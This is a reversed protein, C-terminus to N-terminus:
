RGHSGSHLPRVIRWARIAGHLDVPQLWDFREGRELRAWLGKPAVAKYLDTENAGPCAVLYDAGSRLLRIRAEPPQAMFTAMVYHIAHADRHYGAGIARHDTHALLMPAMDIPAFLTSIPLRALHPMEDIFVCSPHTERAAAAAAARGAPTMSGILASGLFGPALAVFAGAGAAIRTSVRPANRARDRLRELLWAAGPLALANATAGARLVFLCLCLAALAIAILMSWSVRTEGRSARWALAGGILGIVPLTLTVVAMLGTQVWIPRGEGVSLYWYRYVLPDLTAFPGRTCVPALWRITAVAALGALALMALRAVPSRPALATAILIGGTGVGIAALWAPAIADCAPALANPGRTAIHLLLLTVPLSAAMAALQVCREPILAWALATVGLIAATIPMGELSIALLTALAAGAIAGSRANPRALLAAVAALALTVQWAHHDIRVPRIQSMLPIPLPTLLIALRATDIGAVRRTIVGVLAMIALLSLLPVVTLTIRTSWQQGVLPDLLTMGAALPLDVLRSWHMVFHGGWLRHQSVDWWSQGALWDRVEALRMADDPDAFDLKAIPTAMVLILIASAILWGILLTPWLRERTAPDDREM